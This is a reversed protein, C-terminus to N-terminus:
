KLNVLKTKEATTLATGPSKPMKGSNIQGAPSSAATACAQAAKYGAESATFDGCTGVSVGGVHCGSTACKAAVISSAETDTWTGATTTDSSKKSGCGSTIAILALVIYLHKM